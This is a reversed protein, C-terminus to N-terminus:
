EAALSHFILLAELKEFRSDNFTDFYTLLALVLADRIEAVLNEASVLTHSTAINCLSSLCKAKVARSM